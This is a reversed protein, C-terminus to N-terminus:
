NGVYKKRMGRCMGKAYINQTEREVECCLHKNDKIIELMSQISGM